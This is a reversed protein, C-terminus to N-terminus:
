LGPRLLHVLGYDRIVARIRRKSSKMPQQRQAKKAQKPQQRDGKDTEEGTADDAEGEALEDSAGDSSDTISASEVDVSYGALAVCSEVRRQM